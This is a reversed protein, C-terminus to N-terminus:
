LHQRVGQLAFTHGTRGHPRQDPSQRRLRARRPLVAELPELAKAALARFGEGATTKSSMKPFRKPSLPSVARPGLVLGSRQRRFYVQFVGYEALGHFRVAGPLASGAGGASSAVAAARSMAWRDSRGRCPRRPGPSPEHLQWGPRDWRGRPLAM